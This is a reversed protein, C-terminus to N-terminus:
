VFLTSVCSPRRHFRTRPTPSLILFCDRPNIEVTTVFERPRVFLRAWRSPKLNWSSCMELTHTHRGSLRTSDRPTRPRHRATHVCVRPKLYVRRTLTVSSLRPIRTCCTYLRHYYTFTARGSQRTAANHPTPMLLRLQPRTFRVRPTSSSSDRPFFSSLDTGLQPLSLPFFYCNVIIIMMM